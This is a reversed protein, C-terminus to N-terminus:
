SRRQKQRYCNLGSQNLMLTQRYIFSRPDKLRNYNLHEAVCAAVGGVVCDRDRRMLNYGQLSVGEDVFSDDQWTESIVLFHPQHQDCVLRLEDM